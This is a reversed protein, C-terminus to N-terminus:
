KVMDRLSEIEAPAMDLPRLHLVVGKVRSDGAVLRFQEGLQMLSLKPPRVRRMIINGSPQPYEPYDGSLMFTVYDPPKLLRRILNRVVWIPYQFLMSLM